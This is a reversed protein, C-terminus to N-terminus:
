GNPFKEIDAAMMELLGATGEQRGRPDDFGDLYAGQDTLVLRTGRGEPRLEVTSLSCSTRVDDRYMDYSSVIRENDVIDHYTARCTSVPGGPPGGKSVDHGGVRFDVVLEESGWEPPGGFWRRKIKADAFAAFVRAPPAPYVRELVFTDFTVTRPKPAM